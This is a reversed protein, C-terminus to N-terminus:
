KDIEGKPHNVGDDKGFDSNGHHRIVVKMNPGYDVKSYFNEFIKGLNIKPRWEELFEEKAM